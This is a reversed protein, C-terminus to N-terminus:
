RCGKKQLVHSDGGQDCQGWQEKVPQQLTVSTVGSESAGTRPGAASPEGSAGGPVLGDTDISDSVSRAVGPINPEADDVGTATRPRMVGLRSCGVEGVAAGIKEGTAALLPHPAEPDSRDRM